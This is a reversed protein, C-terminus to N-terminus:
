IRPKKRGFVSGNYKRLTKISLIVGILSGALMSGGWWIPPAQFLTLFGSVLFGLGVIILSIGMSRTFAPINEARVNKYHYDNLLSYRRKKWIVIGPIIGILSTLFGLVFLVYRGIGM